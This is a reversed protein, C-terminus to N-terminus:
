KRRRAQSGQSPNYPPTTERLTKWDIDKFFPHCKLEELDATGIREEPNKKLLREILDKAHADINSKVYIVEDFDNINAFTEEKDNGKFPTKGNLFQYM